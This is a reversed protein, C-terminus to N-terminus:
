HIKSYFSGKREVLHWNARSLVVLLLLLHDTQDYLGSADRIRSLPFHMMMMMLM